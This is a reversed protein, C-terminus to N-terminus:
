PHQLDKIHISAIMAQQSVYNAALTTINGQRGIADAMPHITSPWQIAVNHSCLAKSKALPICLYTRRTSELLYFGIGDGLRAVSAFRLNM